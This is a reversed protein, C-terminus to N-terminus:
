TGADTARNTLLQLLATAPRLFVQATPENRMSAEPGQGFWPGSPTLLMIRLHGAPLPPLSPKTWAWASGSGALAGALGKALTMWDDVVAQIAPDERDEWIVAGGAYNLYRATRDRYVALVDHSRQIPVEVVAGFAESTLEAPPRHGAQRVFHWAQLAVRSELGETLAIQRWIAVAEAQQGARALRRAQEFSAWPERSQEAPSQPGWQELPVDGYVFQRLLGAASAPKRFLM